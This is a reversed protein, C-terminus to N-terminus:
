SAKTPKWRLKIVFQAETGTKAVLIDASADLKLGFGLEVEEPPDDLERLKDRFENALMRTVELARSFSAKARESIEDLSPSAKVVDGRTLPIVEEDSVEIQVYGENGILTEIYKSM